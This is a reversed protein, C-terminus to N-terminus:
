AKAAQFPEEPGVYSLQIALGDDSVTGRVVGDLSEPLTLDARGLPEFDSSLVECDGGDVRIRVPMGACDTGEEFWEVPVDAESKRWARARAPGLGAVFSEWLEHTEPTPWGSDRGLAVIMGSTAWRVLGRVDEFDANGAAVAKIAGNRSGFGAKMLVAAPVSLTGTEVAAVAFGLDLEGFQAGDPDDSGGVVGHVRVAEMAWPLRYILGGEVFRLVDPDETNVTAGLMEGKLWAMLVQRWNEPLPEPTFPRVGFVVEAFEGITTVAREEDGSVIFANASVLLARLRKANADLFRGTTLGVGALFYAKRQASTTGQFVVRVRGALGLKLIRRTQEKRNALSRAWLSSQLVDDLRDEVDEDPIGGDGFLGLISTDLTSVFSNWRREERRREDDDEELLDPFEWYSGNSVYEILTSIDGPKHMRIMRSLLHIVLLVLGSEIGLEASEEVLQRWDRRRNTERDFMPYLVQGEIDVFARGARGVVNRFERADIVNRRRVGHFVLASATLNLGQALTPSSITIRLVGERLLREVERRYPTPLAGHHVAVGLRLCYLLASDEGLWEKGIVLAKELGEPGGRLVRRLAGREHLDKIADAFPEVSRRQPCYILVSHGEDELTWATALCFERQNSPFVKRRRGKPPVEGTFFSPVFPRENDVTFELRAQNGRWQVVGFMLRTPRWDMRALGEKGSDGTLWGVFDDAEEADPLVASLCVIRRKAADSRRLLLQVQVEYRVEREGLGIMHGEDLVVLGVDDILSPENRLAFDLKEPTAVVVDRDRLLSEDVSSSGIGGYLSSVSKGLPRFTRELSLETQASLARLPTVFVVRQGRALTVLICLEAIRTKGASTPLSVVLNVSSEVASKIAEIQSPWLEIEARSRRFLSAVFLERLNEWEQWPVDGPRLPLRVHFSANWLDGLLFTALRHCWWQNVLNLEASCSTGVILRERAADVLGGEGREFGLLATGIASAFGDELASVVVDLEEDGDGEIAALRASLEDDGGDGSSKHSRILEELDDLRRVMLLSLCREPFTSNGERIENALLSFARATYRALHYSAAAVFRYFDREASDEGNAVVAEIAWAANEFAARAVETRGDGELIDLGDSLLSFGYSLLDYTLLPSFQPADEPLVGDRWIMSRAQGRALLRGRFGSETADAVRGEKEEVTAM